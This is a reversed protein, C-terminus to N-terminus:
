HGGRPLSLVHQQAVSSPLLSTSPGESRCVGGRKGEGSEEEGEGGREKEGRGEEEEEKRRERRGERAGEGRQM